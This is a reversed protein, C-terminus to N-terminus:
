SPIASWRCRVYGEFLRRATRYVTASRATAIRGTLDLDADVQTIGSPHAIRIPGEASAMLAHPISDPIRSAVGLCLAGTLPVARHLKGDSNMRIALDADRAAFRTGSLATFAHPKAVMAVRLPSTKSGAGKSALGIAASAAMRVDELLRMLGADAELDDLTEFGTRGLAAADVFVCPTAADVISTEIRGLGPIDLTTRSDNAPLLAGTKAGGPEDFQLSIPAGTGSVGDLVFDGDVRAEGDVVAFRAAIVKNTNTNHIRICVAQLGAAAVLGEDVAFPGIASVMNGCNTSYDVSATKIAIQAFTYDIDADPRTPPGVICVKSVSLAGGGMGDLQRGNPDPSGLIDLFIRDRSPQDPPLDAAHFIVAKSTGGRMFVARIKSQQM